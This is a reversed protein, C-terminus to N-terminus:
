LIPQILPFSIKLRIATVLKCNLLPFNSIKFCVITSMKQLPVSPNLPVICHRIQNLCQAVLRFTAPEIGSPTKSNKISEPGPTSESELLFPLYLRGTRLASLIVVKVHWIDHFRPAEVEQFEWPWDLSTIPNSKKKLPNLFPWKCPLPLLIINVM